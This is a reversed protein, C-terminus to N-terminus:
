RRPARAAAVRADRDLVDAQAPRRQVLREQVQGPVAHPALHRCSRRRPGDRVGPRHGPAVEGVHDPRGLLHDDVERQRDHEHQDEPVDEAAAHRHRRAAVVPLEQQGADEHHGHQVAEAGGRRADGGVDVAAHDVPEPRHRHGARRQHGAAAAASRNRASSSIAVSTTQPRSTPQCHRSPRASAARPPRRQDQQQPEREGPHADEQAQHHRVRVRDADITKGSANGSM